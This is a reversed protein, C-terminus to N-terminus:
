LLVYADHCKGVEYGDVQGLEAQPGRQVTGAGVREDAEGFPGPGDRRRRSLLSLCFNTKWDVGGFIIPPARDRM